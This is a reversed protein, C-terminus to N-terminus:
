FAQQFALNLLEQDDFISFVETFAATLPINSILNAFVLTRGSRAKIYGVLNSAGAIGVAPTAFAVRNSPKAEINGVALTGKGLQALTGNVGVV